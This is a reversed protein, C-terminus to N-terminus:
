LHVSKNLFVYIVQDINLEFVKLIIVVLFFQKKLYKIVVIDMGWYM